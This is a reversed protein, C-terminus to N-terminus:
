TTPPWGSSCWRAGSSPRRPTTTRTPPARRAPHARRAAGGGRPTLETPPSASTSTPPRRSGTPATASTSRTSTCSSSATRPTAASSSSPPPRGGAAQARPDSRRGEPDGAQRVAPHHDVRGARDRRGGRQSRAARLIARPDVGNHRYFREDEIAIVAERVHVPIQELPIVKRNEEAHFTYSSRATPPTSRPRSSRRRTPRTSPRSTYTCAGLAGAIALSSRPHSPDACPRRGNERVSPTWGAGVPQVPPGGPSSSTRRIGGVQSRRSSRSARPRSGRCCRGPPGRPGARRPARDREVVPAVRRRRAQVM